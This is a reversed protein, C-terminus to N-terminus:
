SIKRIQVAINDWLNSFYIEYGNSLQLSLARIYESHAPLKLGYSGTIGGLEENVRVVNYGIIKQGEVPQLYKKVEECDDQGYYEEAISNMGVKLTSEDLIGIEFRCDDEFCIIATICDSVIMYGDNEFNNCGFDYKDWGDLSRMKKITRGVLSLAEIHKEFANPEQFMPVDWDLWSFDKIQNDM